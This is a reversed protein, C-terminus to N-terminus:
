KIATSFGPLFITYNGIKITSIVDRQWKTPVNIIRVVTFSLIYIFIIKTRIRSVIVFGHFWPVFTYNVESNNIKLLYKLIVNELKNQGDSYKFIQNGIHSYQIALRISRHMCKNLIYRIYYTCLVTQQWVFNKGQVNCLM